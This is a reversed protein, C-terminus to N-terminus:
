RAIVEAAEDMYEELTIKQRAIEKAVDRGVYRVHWPEYSYGTIKEKGKLFRIIFGHDAAHAALWKGEKTKAFTEELAYGVSASSIDMALGTQHESQGPRASTKNAVDEGKKEANATFIAKQTAYSRYGSVAKLEIGDDKAAQFLSELADAAAKRMKKKPSDGSFSFPVDPVVLDPPVYDSPLNRKKNALVYLSKPNTIVDIGGKHEITMAPLDDPSIIQGFDYDDNPSPKSPKSPKPPKSPESPESPESPKGSPKEEPTPTPTSEPASAEPEEVEIPESPSASPTSLEPSAPASASTDPKGSANDNLAHVQSWLGGVITAAIIFYIIKKM